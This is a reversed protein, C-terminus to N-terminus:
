SATLLGLAVAADRGLTTDYPFSTGNVVEFRTQYDPEASPDLSWDLIIYGRTRLNWGQFQIDRADEYIQAGLRAALKPSALNPGREAEIISLRALKRPRKGARM